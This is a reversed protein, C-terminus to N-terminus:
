KLLDGWSGLDFINPLHDWLRRRADKYTKQANECCSDCGEFESWGMKKALPDTQDDEDLDDALCRFQEADCAAYDDCDHNEYDAVLFGVLVRRRALILQPIALACRKRDDVDEINLLPKGPVGYLIKELSQYRSVLYMLGPLLSRLNLKRAINLAHIPDDRTARYGPPIAKTRNLWKALSCPYIDSLISVMSDLLDAVDYKESIRVVSSLPLIGSVTCSKSNSPLDTRHHFAKLFWTFDEEKDHLQLVPCGDIEEREEAPQPISFTDHFVTSRSALLGRYVRYLTNEVRLVVTGDEFWFETSRVLEAPVDM